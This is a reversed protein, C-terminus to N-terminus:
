WSIAWRHASVIDPATGTTAVAQVFYEAGAQLQSLESEWVQTGTGVVYAEEYFELNSASPGYKMYVQSDASIPAQAVAHITLQTPGVSGAVVPTNFPGGQPPVGSGPQTRFPGAGLSMRDGYPNEVRAQVYYNTDPDLGELYAEYVTGGVLSAVAILYLGENGPNPEEGYLLQFATLPPNSVVVGINFRIAMSTPTTSGYLVPTTITGTPPGEGPPPTPLTAFVASPSSGIGDRNIARAIFEYSTGPQLDTVTAAYFGPRGPIAVVLRHNLVQGPPEAPGWLLDYTIPQRGTVDGGLFEVTLSTQLADHLAPASPGGVPPRQDAVGPEEGKL